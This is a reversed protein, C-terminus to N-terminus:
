IGLKQVMKRGAEVARHSPIKRASSNEGSVDARGKVVYEIFEAQARQSIARDIGTKTFLEQMTAIRHTVPVTEPETECETDPNTEPEAKAEPAAQAPAREEIKLPLLPLGRGWTDLRNFPDIIHGANRWQLFTQFMFFLFGMGAELFAGQIPAAEVWIVAWLRATHAGYALGVFYDNITNEAATPDKVIARIMKRAEDALCWTYQKQIINLGITTMLGDFLPQRDQMKCSALLQCFDKNMPKVQWWRVFFPMAEGEAKCRDAMERAIDAQETRDSHTAAEYEGWDQACKLLNLITKTHGALARFPDAFQIM